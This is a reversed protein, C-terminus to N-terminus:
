KKIGGKFKDIWAMVIDNEFRISRGIQKFPMGEGRWREITTKTIKLYTALEKTTLLARDM